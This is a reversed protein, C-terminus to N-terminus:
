PMQALGREVLWPEFVARAKAMATALWEHQAPWDARDSANVDRWAFVIWLTQEGHRDVEFPAGLAAELATRDAEILAMIDDVDTRWMGIYAGYRGRSQLLYAVVSVSKAALSCYYNTGRPLSGTRILGHSAAVQDFAAWYSSWGEGPAAPAGQRTVARTERAWANPRVVVNFRPAPLSDGIRWAEVEVGFFAVDEATKRNLWDLAARHGETFREAVWIAIAADTGALYTLTQGLHKHDSVEIQNEIAVISETGPVKAVIDCSFESVARETQILELAPLGIADALFQLNEPQALWPTFSGAEHAWVSRLPLRELRALTPIEQPM